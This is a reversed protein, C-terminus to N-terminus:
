DAGCSRWVQPRHRESRAACSTAVCRLKIEAEHEVRASERQEPQEQEFKLMRHYPIAADEILAAIQDKSSMADQDLEVGVEAAFKRLVTVTRERADFFSVIREGAAGDGGELIEEDDTENDSSADDGDSSDEEVSLSKAEDNALGRGRGSVGGRGRGRGSARGGGRGRVPQRAAEAAKIEGAKEVIWAQDPGTLRSQLEQLLRVKVGLQSLQDNRLGFHENLYQKVETVTSKGSKSREAVFACLAQHIGSAMLAATLAKAEAARAEVQRKRKIENLLEDGSIGLVTLTPIVWPAQYSLGLGFGFFRDTQM